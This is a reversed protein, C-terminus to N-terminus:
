KITKIIKFDAFNEPKETLVENDIMLWSHSKFFGNKVLVGIFLEPKFYNRKLFLLISVSKILCSNIRTIKFIKNFVNTYKVEDSIIFNSYKKNAKEIAAIVDKFSLFKVLITAYVISYLIRFIIFLNKFIHKKKSLM